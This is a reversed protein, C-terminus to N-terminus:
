RGSGARRAARTLYVSTGVPLAVALVLAGIGFWASSSTSSDCDDVADPTPAPSPAGIAVTTQSTAPSPAAECSTSTSLPVALLLFSALLLGGPIVLTGIAKARPSWVKSCWLLVVGVIWGFFPVIVGGVLLLIVAAVELLGAVAPPSAPASWAERAIQEPPGLRDLIERVEIESDDAAQSRAADIHERIDDLLEHRTDSPAGRMATDLRALYREVIDDTQSRV